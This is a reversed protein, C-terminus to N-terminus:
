SCSYHRTHDIVQHRRKNCGFVTSNSNKDQTKDQKKDMMKDQTKDQTRGMRRGQKKDKGFMKDTTKGMKKGKGFM